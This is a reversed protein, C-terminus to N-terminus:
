GEKTAKLIAKNAVRYVHSLQVEKSVYEKGTITVIEELEESGLREMFSDLEKLAEKMQRQPVKGILKPEIKKLLERVKNLREM